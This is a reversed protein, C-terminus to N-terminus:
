SRSAVPTWCWIKGKLEFEARSGRPKIDLVEVFLTPKEVALDALLAVLATYEGAGKWQLSLPTLQGQPRDPVPEVTLGSASMKHRGAAKGVEARYAAAAKALDGDCVAGLPLTGPTGPQSNLRQVRAMADRVGAMRPDVEAPRSLLGLALGAVAGVVVAIAALLPAPAIAIKM